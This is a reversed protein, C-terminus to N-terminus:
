TEWNSVNEFMNKTINFYYTRTMTSNSQLTDHLKKNYPKQKRIFIYEEYRAKCLKINDPYILKSQMKEDVM